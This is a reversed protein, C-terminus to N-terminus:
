LLLLPFAFLVNFTYPVEMAEFVSQPASLTLWKGFKQPPTFTAPGALPVEGATKRPDVGPPSIVTVEHGAAELANVLSLVHHGEAGRGRTRHHYIFRMEHGCRPSPCQKGEAM